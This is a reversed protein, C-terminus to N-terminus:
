SYACVRNRGTSKAKYLADDAKKVAVKADGSETVAVGASVTLYGLASECHPLQMKDVSLRLREAGVLAGDFDTGPMLLLIEEGGYRYIRDSDRMCEKMASVVSRLAKDGAQHGYHDNYKKFFDIDMLAVAFEKKFRQASAQTFELDVDMSRRNGIGLLSDELSLLELERNEEELEAERDILEMYAKMMDTQTVLGVLKDQSNVVPLHRLHCSCALVLADHLSTKDKVCLPEATMVETVPPDLIIGKSQFECLTRVVDRETVIGVPVDGKCVLVCSHSHDRMMKVADSLSSDISVFSSVASMLDVIIM